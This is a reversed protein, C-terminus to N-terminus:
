LKMSMVPKKDKRGRFYIECTTAVVARNSSNEIGATGGTDPRLPLHQAQNESHHRNNEM